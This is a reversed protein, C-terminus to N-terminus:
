AYNFWKQKLNHGIVETLGHDKTKVHDTKHTIVKPLRESETPQYIISCSPDVSFFLSYHSDKINPIIYKGNQSVSIIYDKPYSAVIKHAYEATFSDVVQPNHYLDSFPTLPDSLGLNESTFTHNLLKSFAISHVDIKNNEDVLAKDIVTLKEEKLKALQQELALSSPCKRQCLTQRYAYNNQVNILQSRLNNAFYHTNNKTDYFGNLYTMARWVKVAETQIINIVQEKNNPTIYSVLSDLNIYTCYKADQINLLEYDGWFRECDPTLKKKLDFKLNDNINFAVVPDKVVNNLANYLTNKSNFFVHQQVQIKRNIEAIKNLYYENSHSLVALKREHENIESNYRRETKDISRQLTQAYAHIRFLNTRYTRKAQELEKIFPQAETLQTGKLLSLLENINCLYDPSLLWDSKLLTHSLRQIQNFTQPITLPNNKETIIFGHIDNAKIENPSLSFSEFDVKREMDCATTSAILSILAFYWFKNM